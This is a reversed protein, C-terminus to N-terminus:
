ERPKFDRAAKHIARWKRKSAIQAAQDQRSALYASERRLKLYSELRAAALQGAEVAARVACRPEREHSCDRYHCGAAVADIDAFAGQIASGADWLQLERLGPTDIVLSGNPLLILERTTTTHRGRSDSARVEATPLRDAGILRNILTSKGVGSSGLVAVTEGATLYVRIGDLGEGDRASMVHIPVGAAVAEVERVYGAVDVCLDAKNLIIVPRAGSEWALVLYREIRRLNFEADLGQALFITDINAAVVQQGTVGGAGHRAFRSRRPLVAHIVARHEQPLLRVAAWDGVAPFEHAGAAQHRLRGAVRALHEGSETHVRYIHQHERAIRGPVLGAAAHAAFADAFFRTWGYTELLPM